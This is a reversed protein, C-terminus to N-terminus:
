SFYKTPNPSSSRLLLSSVKYRLAISSCYFFCCDFLSSCSTFGGPSSARHSAWALPSVMFRLRLRAILLAKDGCGAKLSFRRRILQPPKQQSSNTVFLIIITLLTQKCVCVESDNNIDISWGVFAEYWLCFVATSFVAAVPSDAPARVRSGLM